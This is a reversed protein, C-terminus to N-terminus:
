QISIRVDLGAENTTTPPIRAAGEPEVTSRKFFISLTVKSSITYKIRPEMTVRTTGDQPTGSEVFQNMNYIVTANNASTYSFSFEIDNQLALGFLPIEFGSKAYGATIGIEKSFTETINKTSIGLDYNTRTSYKLNSTLNGGWLEGFSFNLGALPAFAYEVKQTQIEQNGEPNIKWGETYNSNYAHDLSVKKAFKEFLFFKELGDWTVRWNPRPIYKAVDQLFGLKSLIPFTEFGQLFANSLNLSQNPADPNYNEAVQKIGTNFVSLFLTPPLSLFSRNITGTSTRNVVTVFGDPDTSITTSKNLSWGVKWNLDVKAGEWLPRSTKFDLNNKQSFVDQLNASPARLGVDSNLGLMFLRPPGNDNQQSLGWFNKFGTGESFLGSKSVSNDNTFNFSITEYDFFIVRATTKLFLLANKLSSKGKGEVIATTDSVATTDTLTTDSKIKPDLPLGEDGQERDRGRRGQTTGPQQVNSTPTTKDEAFLPTALSKLRLVLGANFKSAFGGSRGLEPQRFDFNWQYGVSYGTTISFFRNIDWLTPLKPATRLEFNQQFQNDKGFFVGTYIDRWIDSEKRQREFHDLELHALSSNISASYNTTLNLFGGETMKWAFNFGRTTTFDRSVVEQSPSNIQPRNINTNRNRKASLNMAFNQPTYFVKVNKYDTLLLAPAGLVPIQQPYFYYDPSFNIGYNVTANWLWSRNVLVSPNRSFTKNYNFGFTLANWSDRVMWYNSPIKLKINSATWTDTINVTQSETRIDDPSKSTSLRAADEVRIDTGPIYVPKGVSESHSYNLRLNSEPLTIPLAKLVDLDASASWNSSEIRSGFDIPL